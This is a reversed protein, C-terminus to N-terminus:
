WICADECFWQNHLRLVQEIIDRVCGKGGQFHSIYDAIHIIELAADAPCAKVAAMQMVQYDPIDDGMYLINEKKLGKEQMYQALIQTKDAIKLFIDIGQFDAYRKKMSESYGGSIICIHYGKKLAYQIAYGDKVNTTRLQDGDPTVTVGGDSLVGDFDFVFTTINHLLEKYRSM